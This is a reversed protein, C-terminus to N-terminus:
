VMPVLDYVHAAVPCAFAYGVPKLGSATSPGLMAVYCSMEPQALFFYIFTTFSLFACCLIRMVLTFHWVNMYCRPSVQLGYEEAPPTQANATM